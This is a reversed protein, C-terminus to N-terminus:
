WIGVLGFEYIVGVIIDAESKKSSEIRLKDLLRSELYAYNEGVSLKNFYKGLNQKNETFEKWRKRQLTKHHTPM